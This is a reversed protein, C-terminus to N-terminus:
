DNDHEDRVSFAGQAPFLCRVVAGRGMRTELDFSAGISAARYEMISLGLGKRNPKEPFGVGNDAVTLVVGGRKRRSLRVAVRTAKGHRIANNVAEQVIRYLHVTVSEDPPILGPECRVAVSVGFLEGVSVALEALASAIGGETLSPYLGRALDRTHTLANKLHAILPGMDAAEPRGSKKLRNLLVQAMFVIGGLEQSLSDHLDQGIRRQEKESVEMLQRQLNTKIAIERRLMENSEVLERTRAKVREELENRARSLSDFAMRRETKDHISGMVRAPSGDAGSYVRGRIRMWHVDRGRGGTRFEEDFSAKRRIAERLAALIRPQDESQITRVFAAFSLDRGRGLRLVAPRSESMMVRGTSLDWDWLGIKAASLAMRLQRVKAEKGGEPDCVRRRGTKAKMAKQGNYAPGPGPAVRGGPVSDAFLRVNEREPCGRERTQCGGANM